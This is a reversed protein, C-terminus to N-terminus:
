YHIQWQRLCSRAPWRHRHFVGGPRGSLICQPCAQSYRVRIRLQHVPSLHCSIPRPHVPLAMERDAMEQDTPPIPIPIPSTARPVPRPRPHPRQHMARPLRRFARPLWRMLPHAMGRTLRRIPRLRSRIRRLPSRICRLPSHYGPAVHAQHTQSYAQPPEEYPPAAYEQPTQPYAQPPQEYGPAVIGRRLRRIRRRRRSTPHHRMGMPLGSVGPSAARLQHRMARPLRRPNNPSFTPLRSLQIPYQPQNTPDPQPGSAYIPSESYPNSYSSPDVYVWQDEAQADQVTSDVSQHYGLDPISQIAPQGAVPAPESPSRIPEWPSTVEM